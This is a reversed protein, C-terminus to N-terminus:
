RVLRDLVRRGQAEDGVHLDPPRAVAGFGGGGPLRRDLAGLSRRRQEEGPLVQWEDLPLSDVVDRAAAVHEGIRWRGPRNDDGGARFDLGRQGRALLEGLRPDRYPHNRHGRGANKVALIRIVPVRHQRRSEWLYRDFGADGVIPAFVHTELAGHDAEVTEAFGGGRTVKELM